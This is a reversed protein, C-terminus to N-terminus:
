VALVGITRFLTGELLAQAMEVHGRDASPILATGGFRNTLTEDPNAPLVEDLVAVDGTEGLALFANM